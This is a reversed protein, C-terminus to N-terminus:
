AAADSWHGPRNLGPDLSPEIEGSERVFGPTVPKVSNKPRQYVGRDHGRSPDPDVARRGGSSFVVGPPDALGRARAVPLQRRGGGLM